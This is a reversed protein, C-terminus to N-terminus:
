LLEALSSVVLDPNAEEIPLGHNYGYPLGIVKVGAAKAARIDNISDGIMLTHHTPAGLSKMAHLLPMPHPKMESLSDGGSVWDFYHDIDMLKLLHHTFQESKNTIVAQKIGRKKMAQLFQVVGPYLYSHLGLEKDYHFCFREYAEAFLPQDMTGQQEGSIDDALARKVLAPIGNGVWLRTKSEGAVPMDLDTLMKDLAAALDPVSEVLTGDLDYMVLSLDNLFPHGNSSTLSM